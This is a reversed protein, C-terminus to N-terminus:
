LYGLGSAYVRYANVEVFRISQYGDVNILVDQEDTSLLHFHFVATGLFGPGAELLLKRGALCLALIGAAYATDEFPKAALLFITGPCESL